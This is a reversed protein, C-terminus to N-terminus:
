KRLGGATNRFGPTMIVTITRSEGPNLFVAPPNLFYSVSTDGAGVAISFSAATGSVNELVVPLNLSRSSTSRIGGFNISVPDLTVAASVAALLNERGAGIVNIETEPTGDRFNKLVTRDATNVIASRMEAASWNSHFSRLVAASGALHPTAMSTGQFFAWCPDGNCFSVPISSLVNVGPAVVDPKVRFDLTPGVSSFGAMIDANATQIYQLAAGITVPTGDAALLAAKDALGIMYAPITPQNTTGDQGMSIPDGVVNNVVLAAVAGAAQADRIKTSFTCTGRSILAIKGTLDATLTSCATSLAGSDLVVALTATLDASVKAFDGAAAGYNNGSATVPAAIYHPVTSAGATLAREAAGPSEITGAGPGSNGAAIAIVMNAKDLNDVATMLRDKANRPTGGLSMNAVDFGDAYATELADLIDADAASAVSAPFVNYNGLLARPAVGSVGYPIAVGSSVAPTNYNCAVTGAVHSGHEQIAEATYGAKATDKNFVKAAIIKNNTFRTDGVQTKAPYGTDNFCPHHIDIGTDIIAVKVEAGANAPGGGAQWAQIAQILGLDPDSVSPHYLVQNEASAVTPGQRLTELSTGNLEVAVAYLAIDFERTIRATPAKAQLWNKFANRVSALEARRSKVANSEFDIKKGQAPRTKISTSLPRAYFQVIATGADIEAGQNAADSNRNQAQANYVLAASAFALVSSTVLISLNRKM